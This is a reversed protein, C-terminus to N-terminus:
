TLYIIHIDSVSLMFKQPAPARPDGSYPFGLPTLLLVAISILFIGLLLSFIRHSDRVLLILPVATSIQFAFLISVMLSILIESNNGAGARGM